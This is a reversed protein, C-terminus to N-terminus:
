FYYFLDWHLCGTELLGPVCRRPVPCSDCGRVKDEAAARRAIHELRQQHNPPVAPGGDRREGV